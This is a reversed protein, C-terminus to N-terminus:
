NKKLCLHGDGSFYPHSPWINELNNYPFGHSDKHLMELTRLLHASRLLLAFFHNKKFFISFICVSSFFDAM